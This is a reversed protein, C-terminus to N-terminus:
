KLAEKIQEIHHGFHSNEGEDFVWDWNRERIKDEGIKQINKELKKEWKELESLLVTPSYNKFEQYIKENFKTYDDTLTFWPENGTKFVKVLEQACEREWGVLHSLEDKIRWKKTAFIDWDSDKLNKFFSVIDM